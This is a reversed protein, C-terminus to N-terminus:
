SQDGRKSIASTRMLATESRNPNIERDVETPTEERAQKEIIQRVIELPVQEFHTTPRLM